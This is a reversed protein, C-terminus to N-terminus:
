KKMIKIIKEISADTKVAYINFHTKSAKFGAKKLRSILEDTKPIGIKYKKAIKHIDYFFPLNIKSEELITQIFKDDAKMKKILSSDNIKGTFIPGAFDMLKKCCEQKNYSSINYNLCKTCYLFYKHESIINDVRTKGKECRFYTRFYHDKSYSFIPILAKDFQAGILQAKRILIRLGAEHMHENRIPAAFYKRKCTKPYTGCLPATDTSTAAIIGGRSIRKVASDLFPNPTGFPDIEIYDFGVSDLLFNNADLQSVEIDECILGEENIEINKKILKVADPSHDNIKISKIKEKKLELLFRAARVGSGALPLGIQLNKKDIANLVLISTDRNFEMKPNYFVPMEKSVIRATHTQIKAKGETITKM